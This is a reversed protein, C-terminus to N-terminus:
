EEVASEEETEIVEVKVRRALPTWDEPYFKHALKGIILHMDKYIYDDLLIPTHDDIIVKATWTTRAKGTKSIWREMDIDKIEEENWSGEPTTLTGDDDFRYTSAKKATKSYAWFYYFGFPLCIIFLWQMPLDYKSPPTVDGYETLNNELTAQAERLKNSDSSSVAERFLVLTNMWGEDLGNDEEIAVTIAVSAKDREEAGMEVFFAPQVFDRQLKARSSDKIANPIVVVYDVVGWVGLVVCVVGMIITKLWYRAALSTTIAM